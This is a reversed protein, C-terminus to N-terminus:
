NKVQSKIFNLFFLQDVFLSIIKMFINLSLYSVIWFCMNMCLFVPISVLLFFMNKFFSLQNEVFFDVFFVFIFYFNLFVILAVLILDLVWSLINYKTLSKKLSTNFAVEFIRRHEEPLRLYKNGLLKLLNENVFYNNRCFKKVMKEEGDIHM